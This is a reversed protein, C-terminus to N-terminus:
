TCGPKINLFEVRQESQTSHKTSIDSCVAVKAEYTMLQNTEIFWAPFHKSRPVSQNRIYLLNRKTNLLNLILWNWHLRDGVKWNVAALNAMYRDWHGRRRLGLGSAASFTPEFGVPHMSIDITHLTHQWTSNKSVLQDCGCLLRVSQPADNHPM